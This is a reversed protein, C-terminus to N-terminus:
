EDEDGFMAAFLEPNARQMVTQTAKQLMLILQMAEAPSLEAPNESLTLHVRPFGENTIGTKVNMTTAPKIGSAEEITLKCAHCVFTFTSWETETGCVPCPDGKDGEKAKGILHRYRLKM